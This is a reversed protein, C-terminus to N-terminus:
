GTLYSCLQFPNLLLKVYYSVSSISFDILSGKTVGIRQRYFKWICFSILSFCIYMINNSQIFGLLLNLQPVAPISCLVGGSQSSCSRLHMHMMIYSSVERTVGGFTRACWQSKMKQDDHRWYLRRWPSANRNTSVQIWTDSATRYNGTLHHARCYEQRVEVMKDRISNYCMPVARSM